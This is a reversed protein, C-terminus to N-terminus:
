RLVVRYRVLETADAVFLQGGSAALLDLAPEQQGSVPIWHAGDLEVLGDAAAALFVGNLVDIGRLIAGSGNGHDIPRWSDGGDESLWAAPIAEGNLGRDGRATTAVLRTGDAVVGLPLGTVGIVRKWYGAHLRWLGSDPVNGNIAAFVEGNAVALGTVAFRDRLGPDPNVQGLGTTADRWHLGGDTSQLVGRMAAWVTTGDFAFHTVLPQFVDAGAQYVVSWDSAGAGHRLIAGDITGAFQTQGDPAIGLSVVPRNVAPQQWTAGGDTSVGLLCRQALGRALTFSGIVLSGRSAVACPQGPPRLVVRDTVTITASPPNAVPSNSKRIAVFSGVGVLLLLAAAITLAAAVFGPREKWTMSSVNRSRGAREYFGRLRSDFDNM